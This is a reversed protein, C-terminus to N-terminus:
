VSQYCIPLSKGIIARMPNLRVAAKVVPPFIKLMRCPAHVFINKETGGHTRSQSNRREFTYYRLSFSPKAFSKM